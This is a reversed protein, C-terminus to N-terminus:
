AAAKVRREDDCYGVVALRYSAVASFGMAFLYAMGWSAWCEAEFQHSVPERWSM